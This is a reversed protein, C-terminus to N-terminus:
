TNIKEKRIYMKMVSLMEMEIFMKHTISHRNPAKLRLTPAKWIEMIIIVAFQFIDDIAIATLFPKDGYLINLLHVLNGKLRFSDSYEPALNQKRKKGKKERRKKKKQKVDARKNQLRRNQRPSCSHQELAQLYIWVTVDGM